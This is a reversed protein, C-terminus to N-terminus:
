NDFIPFRHYIENTGGFFISNTHIIDVFDTDQKSLATLFPNMPFFGPSAPDLGTVRPIKFSLAASTRAAYGMMHAGLSHGVLYFSGFGESKMRALTQGLLTGIAAVYDLTDLVYNGGSYKAWNVVLINFDTKALFASVVTQTSENQYGSGWGFAYVVTFKSSDFEMMCLLDKSQAFPVAVTNNVNKTVFLFTVDSLNGCIEAGIVRSCAVVLFVKFLM